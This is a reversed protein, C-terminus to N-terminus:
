DVREYLSWRQITDSVVFRYPGGREITHPSEQFKTNRAAVVWKPRLAHAGEMYNERAGRLGADQLRFIASKDGFVGYTDGEARHALLHDLIPRDVDRFDKDLPADPRYLHQVFLPDEVRGFLTTWSIWGLVGLVCAIWIPGAARLREAIVHTGLAALLALVVFLPMFARVLWADTFFLFLIASGALANGFLFWALTRRARLLAVFGVLSLVLVPWTVLLDLRQTAFLHQTTQAKLDSWSDTGPPYQKEFWFEKAFPSFLALALTLAGVPAASWAYTWTRRSFLARTGGRALTALVVCLGSGVIYPAVGEGWGFALLSFVVLGAGARAFGRRDGDALDFTVRHLQWLYGLYFCAFGVQGWGTRSFFVHIPLLALVAAAILAFRREQPWIRIVFFWALLVTLVGTLASSLRLAALSSAGFRFFYRTVFQHLYCHPFTVTKEHFHEAFWGIWEVDERVWRVPHFGGPEIVDIQASHLYAGDDPGIYFDEIRRTRLFLAALLVLALLIRERTRARAAGDAAPPTLERDGHM